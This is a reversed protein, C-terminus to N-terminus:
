EEGEFESELEGEVELEAGDDPGFQRAAEIAYSKNEYAEGSESVIEGNSSKAHWRWGDKARYVTVKM